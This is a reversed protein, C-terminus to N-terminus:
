IVIRHEGARRTVRTRDLYELLPIAHKRTLGTLEKFEAVELKAGKPWRERVKQVLQDLPERAVLLAQGVRVLASEALLVRAVRQLREEPERRASALAALEIGALGAAGAADLLTERAQQEAPDLRVEHTAARVADPGAAVRGSAALGALVSEFVAADARGFVRARLEERPIGNRLPQDRHYTAIADLAASELRAIASGAVLLKEDSGVAVMGPAGALAPALTAAPITLRAALRELELGGPGAEELLALAAEAASGAARLRELAPLDRQGRKPPLPDIVSAGGITAAPSYSRIVLRDHRGAVARSELRLQALALRGPLLPGPELLRVRALREASALHVRVRAGDALPRAGDLLALEVDLMATPQLAGPTSLVFGRELEVTEAGSLNVATRTGAPVREAAAGHVQLGRVRARRGSPLVELEDGM